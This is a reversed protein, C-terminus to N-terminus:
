IIHCVASKNSIGIKSIMKKPANQEYESKLQININAFVPLHDSVLSGTLCGYENIAALDEKSKYFVRDTYSPIRKSDYLLTGKKLRYTPMFNIKSELYPVPGLKEGIKYIKFEDNKVLVDYAKLEVLKRIMPLSCGHIRFNSDGLLITADVTDSCFTRKDKKGFKLGKEIKVWDEVRRKM